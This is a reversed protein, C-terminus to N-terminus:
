ETKRCSVSTIQGPRTSPDTSGLPLDNWALNPDDEGGTVPEIRSVVLTPLAQKLSVECRFTPNISNWSSMPEGTFSSVLAITGLHLNETSRLLAATTLDLTNMNFGGVETWTQDGVIYAPSGDPTGAPGVFNTSKTAVINPPPVDPGTSLSGSRVPLGYLITMTTPASAYLKMGLIQPPPNLETAFPALLSTPKFKIACPYYFSYDNNSEAVEAWDASEKDPQEPPVPIITAPLQFFCMVKFYIEKDTSSVESMFASKTTIERSESPHFLADLQGPTLWKQPRKPRVSM